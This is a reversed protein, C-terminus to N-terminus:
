ARWLLCEDCLITTPKQPYGLDALIHHLNVTYQGVLFLAAYEAEAASTDPASLLFPDM